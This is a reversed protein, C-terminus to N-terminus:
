ADPGLHQTAHEHTSQARGRAPKVHDMDCFIEFLRKASFCTGNTSQETYIAAAAHAQTGRLARQAFAARAESMNM